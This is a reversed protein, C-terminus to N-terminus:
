SHWRTGEVLSDRWEKVERTTISDARRGGFRGLLRRFGIDSGM